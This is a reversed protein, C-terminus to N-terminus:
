LVLWDIAGGRSFSSTYSLVNFSPGDYVFTGKGKMGTELPFLLSRLAELSYEGKYPVDYLELVKTYDKGTYPNLEYVDLTKSSPRYIWGGQDYYSL